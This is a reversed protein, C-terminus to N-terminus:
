ETRRNLTAAGAVVFALIFGGLVAIDRRVVSTVSPNVTLEQMAHVAYTLALVAAVGELPGPLGTTSAVIGCLLLQPFILAPLFQVAQFETRAFARVFLGLSTGLPADLIAILLVAAVPAAITLGFLGFAFGSVVVAQVVAAAGFALGYGGLSDFKAMPTTMLRELTGDTRERLTAISTVIFMVLLPFIGLLIAGWRDFAGPQDVPIWALLGTLMVPAVLM